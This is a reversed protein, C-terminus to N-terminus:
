FPLGKCCARTVGWTRIWSPSATSPWKTALREATRRGTQVAGAVCGDTHTHPVRSLTDARPSPGLAGRWGERITICVCRAYAAVAPTRAFSADPFFQLVYLLYAAINCDAASFGGPLVFGLDDESVCGERLHMELAALARPVSKDRVGSDYVKGDPTEKFCCPDLTANAWVLWKGVSARAVPTDAGGYADALYALIAGSEFLEVGDGDRLAPVALACCCPLRTLALGALGRPAAGRENSAQRTRAGGTRVKAWQTRTGRPTPRRWRM